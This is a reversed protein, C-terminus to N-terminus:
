ASVETTVPNSLEGVGEVRARVVDGDGLVAAGPTGSSIIDGPFLPMMQSHFSVLEALPFTMNATTNTAVVQDNRITDVRLQNLDRGASELEALTVIQPGFSFFTPFNKSRTLYRPNRQLIDEATQDLIPVLGFVYDMAEEVSVNRCLRGIVIGVEGEATTRESQRPVVIREGPGIITHNGKIFSAPETPVNESLDRAHDSYNLGIGWIKPPDAYPAAFHLGDLHVASRAGRLQAARVAEDYGNARLVDVIGDSEGLGDLVDHIPWVVGREPDILSPTPRGNLIPRAIRM